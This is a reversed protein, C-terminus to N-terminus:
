KSWNLRNSVNSVRRDSKAQCCQFFHFLVFWERPDLNITVAWFYWSDLSISKMDTWFKRSLSHIRSLRAILFNNKIAASIQKCKGGGSSGLEVKNPITAIIPRAHCRKVSKEEWVGIKLVFMGLTLLFSLSIVLSQINQQAQLQLNWTWKTMLSCRFILSLQCVNNILHATM